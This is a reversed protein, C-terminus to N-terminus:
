NLISLLNEQNNECFCWYYSQGCRSCQNLKIKDSNKNKEIEKLEERKIKNVKFLNENRKILLYAIFPDM